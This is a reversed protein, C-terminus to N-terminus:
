FLNQQNSSSKIHFLVFLNSIYFKWVKNFKWNLHVKRFIFTWIFIRDFQSTILFCQRTRFTYYFYIIYITTRAFYSGVYLQWLFHCMFALFVNIYIHLVYLTDPFKKMCYREQQQNHSNCCSINNFQISIYIFHQFQHEIFMDGSWVNWDWNLVDSNVIIIFRFIEESNSRDDIYQLM